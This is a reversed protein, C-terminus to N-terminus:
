SPAAKGTGKREPRVRRETCERLRLLDQLKSIEARINRDPILLDTKTGLYLRLQYFKLKVQHIEFDPRQKEIWNLFEDLIRRWVHPVNGLAFGYWGKGVRYAWKQFLWLDTEYSSALKLDGEYHQKRAQALEKKYKAALKDVISTRKSKM